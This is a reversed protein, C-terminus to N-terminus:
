EARDARVGSVIACWARRWGDADGAMMPPPVGRTERRVALRGRFGKTGCEKRHLTRWWNPSADDPPLRRPRRTGQPVSMSGFWPRPSARDGDRDWPTRLLARLVMTRRGLHMERCARARPAARSAIVLAHGPNGAGNGNCRGTRRLVGEGERRTPGLIRNGSLRVLRRAVDLKHRTLGLEYRNGLSVGSEGFDRRLRLGNVHGCFVDGRSVRPGANCRLSIQLREGRQGTRPCARPRRAKSFLKEVKATAGPGHSGRCRRTKHPLHDFAFKTCMSLLGGGFHQGAKQSACLGSFGSSSQQALGEAPECSAWRSRRLLFFGGVTVLRKLADASRNESANRALVRSGPSSSNRTTRVHEPAPPRRCM